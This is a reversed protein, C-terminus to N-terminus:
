NKTAYWGKIPNPSETNDNNQLYSFTGAMANSNNGEFAYGTFTLPPTTMTATNSQQTFKIVNGYYAGVLKTEVPEYETDLMTGSILNGNTLTLTVDYSHGDVNFKWSGAFDGTFAYVTSSSLLLLGLSLYKTIKM